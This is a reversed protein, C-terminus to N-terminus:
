WEIRQRDRYFGGSPGGDPLTAAWVITDSGELTSREAAPGGMDTRVWGPCVSNVLVNAGTLEVALLRTVANLATKSARYAPWGASMDSLAGLGSSVNVIRGYGRARMGPGVAQAVRLAGYVNVDFTRRWLELDSALVGANARGAGGKADLMVGANNVLADAGGLEADLYRGLAAVSDPRTVDLPHFRVDLGEGALARAADRGKADDRATLVVRHGKRALQRCTEFGLGRAAGTV